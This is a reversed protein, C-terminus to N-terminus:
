KFFFDGIKVFFSIIPIGATQTGWMTANALSAPWQECISETSSIHLLL